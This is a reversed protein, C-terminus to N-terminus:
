FLIMVKNHVQAYKVLKQETRSESEYPTYELKIQRRLKQEKREDQKIRTMNQKWGKGIM